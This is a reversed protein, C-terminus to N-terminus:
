YWRISGAAGAAQAATRRAEVEDELRNLLFYGHIVGGVYAALAVAIASYQVARFATDDGTGNSEGAFFAGVNAALGLGQLVAFASGWGPEDMVFQPIGLPLWVTVAHPVVVLELKPPPGKPEPKEGRERLIQDLTPMLEKRVAEFAAIVEPPVVFPDLEHKPDLLLLDGFEDKAEETKGLLHLSVGLLSRAEIQQARDLIRMPKVWPGLVAVVKDFDRFEFANRALEVAARADKPEARAFSPLALLVALSGLASRAV